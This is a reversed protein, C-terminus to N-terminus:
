YSSPFFCFDQESKSILGDESGHGIGKKTLFIWNIFGYSIRKLFVLLLIGTVYIGLLLSHPVIQFLLPSNDSFYDYLCFGGLICTVGGLTLIYRIESGVPEDFLNGREKHQFFNRFRQFLYKKGNRLAYSYLLFCLFVSLTVLSDSRLLYPLPEGQMGTKHDPQMSRILASDLRSQQAQELQQIERFGTRCVDNM